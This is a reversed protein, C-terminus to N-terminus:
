VSGAMRSLRIEPVTVSNLERWRKVTPSRPRRLCLDAAAQLEAEREEPRAVGPEEGGVAQLDDLEGFAGLIQACCNRQKLQVRDVRPPLRTRSVRISRGNAM